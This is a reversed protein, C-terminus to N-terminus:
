LSGPPAKLALEAGYTLLVSDANLHFRDLSNFALGEDQVSVIGNGSPAFLREIM